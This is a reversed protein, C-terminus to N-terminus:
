TYYKLDRADIKKQIEAYKSAAKDRNKEGEDLQSFMHLIMDVKLLLIKM